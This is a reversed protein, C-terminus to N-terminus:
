GHQYVGDNGIKDVKAYGLETLFDTCSPGLGNEEILIVPHCREITKRAGKLAPLEHGEIDLWIAEPDLELSDIPRVRVDGSSTLKVQWTGCHLQDVRHMSAWAYAEGFAGYIVHVDSPVNQMMCRYNAAEPEATIVNAFHERLRMPYVGVCGGAQIVCNRGQVHKLFAPIAIDAERLCHGRGHVDSDPWHIGAYIM